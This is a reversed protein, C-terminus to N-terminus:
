FFYIKKNWSKNCTQLLATLAVIRKCRLYYENEFLVCQFLINKHLYIKPIVATVNWRFSVLKVIGMNKNWQFFIYLLVSKQKRYCFSRSSTFKRNLIWNKKKQQFNNKITKQSVCFSFYPSFCHNCRVWVNIYKPLSLHSIYVFVFASPSIMFQIWFIQIFINLLNNM